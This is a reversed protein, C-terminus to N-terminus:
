ISYLWLSCDSGAYRVAQKNRGDVGPVRRMRKGWLPRFNEEFRKRREVSTEMNIYYVEWDRGGGNKEQFLSGMAGAPSKPIMCLAIFVLILPIGAHPAFKAL